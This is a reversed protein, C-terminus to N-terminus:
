PIVAGSSPIPTWGVAESLGRASAAVAACMEQQDYGGFRTGPMALGICGIVTRQAGFIPAAIGAVDLSLDVYVAVGDRRISALEALLDSAPLPERGSLPSVARAAIVSDLENPPLHALIARGFSGWPLSVETYREIVFRLPHPAPITDIVTATRTRPRYLVFVATEQWDQWLHHLFPEAAKPAEIDRLLASAIRLLKLGPRYSQGSGREVMDTELLVQLLRHVTTTPLKARATLEKLTFETELGAIVELLLVLRRGSGEIKKGAM